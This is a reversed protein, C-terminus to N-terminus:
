SLLLLYLKFRLLDCCKMQCIEANKTGSLLPGPIETWDETMVMYVKRQGASTLLARALQRSNRGDTGVPCFSNVMKCSDNLSLFSILVSNIM